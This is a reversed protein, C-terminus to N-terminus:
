ELPTRMTVFEEATTPHVGITANFQEKTLGAKVAIAIGQIIEGAGEGLMHAGVVTRSNKLVILKLLNKEGTGSLTHKLPTFTAQFTEIPENYKAEAQQKTYGVTGLNPQSFVATAIFQYDATVPNNKYWTEVFQVAEHLAVPTLEPGDTIDGLAFISPVNTQFQSNIVVKGNCALVIDVKDLGLGDFRPTRGTACLVMDVKKLTGDTLTLHLQEDVKKASAISSEFSIKVGKRQMEVALAEALDDDFGRLLRNKRILMETQVGLGNLVSAFEVGIYGAGIIVVSEPLEDLHFIDDSTIFLDAGPINPKIPVGGTAILIKEGSIVNNNVSVEHPSVISGWGEIIEAGSQELLRQYIGNLRKIEKDKSERLHEWNFDVQPVTWGFGQSENFHSSYESAYVFLKKPVCGANVCTGGLYQSEIVAVKKGLAATLRAARVGASGAGIVILDYDFQTM